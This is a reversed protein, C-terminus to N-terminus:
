FNFLCLQSHHVGDELTTTEISFAQLLPTKEFLSISLIQRIEGVSRDIKLEKEMCLFQDRCSFRRM